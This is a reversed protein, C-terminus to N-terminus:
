GKRANTAGSPAGTPPETAGTQEVVRDSYAASWRQVRDNTYYVQFGSFIGNSNAVRRGTPFEYFAERAGNPGPLEVDPRGFAEEVTQRSVGPTVVAGVQQESLTRSATQPRCARPHLRALM